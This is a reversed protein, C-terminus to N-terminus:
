PATTSDATYGGIAPIENGKLACRSVSLPFGQIDPVSYYQDVVPTVAFTEDCFTPGFDPNIGSGYLRGKEPEAEPNCMQQPTVVIEPTTDTAPVTFGYCEVAPWMGVAKYTASCGNLTIEVDATFQTGPAAATVYFAINSWQYSLDTPPLVVPVACAGETDGDAIRCIADPAAACDADLTCTEPITTPDEVYLTPDSDFEVGPFIVRAPTVEASNPDTTNTTLVQCMDNDDPDSAVFAGLSSPQVTDGAVGFDETMWTLEGLSQTRIAISTKSFDRDKGDSTAPHYSQFGVVEGQAVPCNNPNQDVVYRTSFALFDNGGIPGTQGVTCEPKPISCSVLGTAALAFGLSLLNKATKM